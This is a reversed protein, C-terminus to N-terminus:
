SEIRQFRLQMEKAKREARTLNRKTYWVRVAVREMSTNDVDTDDGTAIAVAVDQSCLTVRLPAKLDMPVVPYYVAIINTDLDFQVPDTATSGTTHSVRKGFYMPGAFQAKWWEDESDSLVGRFTATLSKSLMSLYVTFGKYNDDQPHAGDMRFFELKWVIMSESYEDFSSPYPLDFQYNDNVGAVLNSTFGIDENSFTVFDVNLPMLIPTGYIVEM